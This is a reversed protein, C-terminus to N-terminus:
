WVIAGDGWALSKHAGASHLHYTTILLSPHSVKLALPGSGSSGMEGPRHTRFCFHPKPILWFERIWDWVNGVAM